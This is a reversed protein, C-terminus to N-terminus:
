VVASRKALHVANRTTAAVFNVYTLCSSLGVFSEVLVAVNESVMVLPAGEINVDVGIAMEGLPELVGDYLLAEEWLLHLHYFHREDM